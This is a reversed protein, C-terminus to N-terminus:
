RRHNFGGWDADRQGDRKDLTPRPTLNAARLRETERTPDFSLETKLRRLAKTEADSLPVFGSLVWAERM